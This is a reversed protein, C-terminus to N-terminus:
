RTEAERRRMPMADVLAFLEEPEVVAGRRLKVFGDKGILLVAFGAPAFRRRLDGEGAPAVDTMVVMDRESLGAEEATLVALQRALRPDEPGDAFVLVPRSTWRLQDLTPADARAILPALGFLLATPPLMAGLRM